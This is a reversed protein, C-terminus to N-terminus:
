YDAETPNGHHSGPVSFHVADKDGAYELGRATAPHTGLWANFAGQGQDLDVAGDPHAYGNHHSTGPYAVPYGEPHLYLYWQEAVSRYGSSVHFHVNQSRALYLVPYLWAAIVVVSGDANTWKTTNGLPWVPRPKERVHALQTRHRFYAAPSRAYLRQPHSFWSVLDAFRQRGVTKPDLGLILQFWASQKADTESWGNGSVVVHQKLDYRRNFEWMAQKLDYNTLGKAELHGPDGYRVQLDPHQILERPTAM